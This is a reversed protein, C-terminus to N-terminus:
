KNKQSSVRRILEGVEVNRNEARKCNVDIELELSGVRHGTPWLDPMIVEKTLKDAAETGQLWGYLYARKVLQTSGIGNWETCNYVFRDPDDQAAVASGRGCLLLVLLVAISLIKM